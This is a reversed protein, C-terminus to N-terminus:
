GAVVRSGLSGGWLFGGAQGGPFTTARDCIPTAVRLLPTEPSQVAGAIPSQPQLESSAFFTSRSGIMLLM